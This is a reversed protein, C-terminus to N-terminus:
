QFKLTSIRVSPSAAADMKVDMDGADSGSESVAMEKNDKGQIAKMMIDIPTKFEVLEVEEQRVPKNFTIDKANMPDPTKLVSLTESRASPSRRGYDSEPTPPATFQRQEPMGHTPIPGMTNRDVPPTYRGYQMPMGHHAQEYPNYSYHGQPVYHPERPAMAPIGYQPGTVYQPAMTPAVLPATTVVRTDYQPYGHNDMMYGNHPQQPHAWQEWSSHVPSPSM